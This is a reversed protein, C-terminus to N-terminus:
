DPYDHKLLPYVFASDIQSQIVYKEIDALMEPM